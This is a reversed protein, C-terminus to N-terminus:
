KVEGADEEAQSYPHCTTWTSVVTGALREGSRLRPGVRIHREKVERTQFVRSTRPISKADELLHHDWIVLM